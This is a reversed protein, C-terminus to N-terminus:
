DVHEQAAFAFTGRAAERFIRGADMDALRFVCQAYQLVAMDGAAFGQRLRPRVEVGAVGASNSASGRVVEYLNGTVTAIGNPRVEILDGPALVDATHAPLGKIVLDVDGMAAPAAIEATPPVLGANLWGTNDSFLTNDSWPEQPLKLRRNLSPQCRLPDSMRLLGAEGDMRAFFAGKPAWASPGRASKYSAQVTWIQYALRANRRPSLTAQARMAFTRLQFESSIFQLWAAPWTFVQM